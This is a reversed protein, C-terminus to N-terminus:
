VFHFEDAVAEAMEATDIIFQDLFAGLGDRLLADIQVQALKGYRAGALALGMQGRETLEVLSALSAQVQDTCYRLSRPMEQRLILFEAINNPRYAEQFFHRYSRHASVSRLITEWQYANRDSSGPGPLLVAYKMKLIRATNDARELFAGIQSFHFGETRLLTGITAGRFMASRQRVWDLFEPLRAPGIREPQLDALENWTSNLAEWMESTLATRVSRANNRAIEVCSRVSSPHDRDLLLFARIAEPTAPRKKAEFADLCGAAVLISRWDERHGGGSNPTLASRYGVETLRAINEAREMYRSMWFLSAATRGLM